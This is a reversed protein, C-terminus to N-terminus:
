QDNNPWPPWDLSTTPVWWLRVGVIAPPMFSRRVTNRFAVATIEVTSLMTPEPPLYQPYIIHHGTRRVATTRRSAHPFSYCFIANLWRRNVACNSMGASVTGSSGPPSRVVPAGGRWRGATLLMLLLQKRVLHRPSHSAVLCRFLSLSRVLLAHSPCGITNRRVDM